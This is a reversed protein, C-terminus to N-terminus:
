NVSSTKKINDVPRQYDDISKFYQYPYALKQSLYQWKDPFKKKLFNSIMWM